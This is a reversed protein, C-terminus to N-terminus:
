AAPPDAPLDPCLEADVCDEVEVVDVRAPAVLVEDADPIPVDLDPGLPDFDPFDAEDAVVVPAAFFWPCATEVAACWALDSALAEPALTPGATLV